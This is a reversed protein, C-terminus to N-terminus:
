EIPFLWKMRFNIESKIKEKKKFSLKITFCYSLVLWVTLNEEHLKWEIYKHPPEIGIEHECAALSMPWFYTSYTEEGAENSNM